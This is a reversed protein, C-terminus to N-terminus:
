YAVRGIEIALGNYDLYFSLAAGNPGPRYDKSGALKLQAGSLLTTKDNTIHLVLTRPLDEGRLAAFSCAASCTLSFMDGDGLILSQDSINADTFSKSHRQRVSGGALGRAVGASDRGGRAKKSDVCVADRAVYCCETCITAFFMNTDLGHVVGSGSSVVIGRQEAHESFTITNSGVFKGDPQSAIKIATSKAGLLRFTNGEYVSGYSSGMAGDIGVAFGGWSYLNRVITGSGRDLVVTGNVGSDNYSNEIVTSTAGPAIWWGNTDSSVECQECRFSIPSDESKHDGDGVKFGWLFGRSTVRKITTLGGAHGNLGLHLGIGYRGVPPPTSATSGLITLDEFKNLYCDSCEIGSGQGFQQIDINHIFGGQVLVDFLIIPETSSRNRVNGWFNIGSLELRPSYRPYRPNKKLLLVPATDDIIHAGFPSATVFASASGCGRVDLVHQVPNDDDQPAIVITGAIYYRGCDIYASLNNKLATDVMAQFAKLNKSKASGDSADPVTGWNDSHLHGDFIQRQMCGFSTTDSHDSPAVIYGGDPTFSSCQTGALFRFIGGGRDSDAHYSDLIVYSAVSMQASTLAKLADMTRIHSIDLAAQSHVTQAMAPFVAAGSTHVMLFAFLAYAISHTLSRTV